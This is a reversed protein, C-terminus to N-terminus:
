MASDGVWGEVAAELSMASGERSGAVEEGESDRTEDGNGSGDLDIDVWEDRDERDDLDNEDIRRCM